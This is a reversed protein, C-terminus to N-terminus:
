FTWVIKKRIKSNYMYIYIYIDDYIEAVNSLSQHVSTKSTEPFHRWQKQRDSM